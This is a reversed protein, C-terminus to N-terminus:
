EIRTPVVRDFYCRTGDDLLISDYEDISGVAPTAFSIATASELGPCPAIFSARLGMGDSDFLLLADNGEPRWSRFSGERVRRLAQQSADALSPDGVSLRKIEAAKEESVEAIELEWSINSAVVSIKYEAGHEFLKLGNGTGELQVITGIHQGSGGDHLRMEFYSPLATESHISWDLLWPGATAFVDTSGNGTGSFRLRDTDAWADAAQLVLLGLTLRFLWRRM